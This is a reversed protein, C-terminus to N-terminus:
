NDIKTNMQKEISSYNKIDGQKTLNAYNTLDKQEYYISTKSEVLAYIKYIIFKVITCNNPINISTALLIKKNSM